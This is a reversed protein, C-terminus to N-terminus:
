LWYCVFNLKENCNQNKMNNTKTNLAGCRYSQVPCSPISVLSGLQEGNVWFWKGDMFRLGTWVSETETGVTELNLQKLSWESTVSALGTYNTRCFEQAEEWTKKEKVLILFRDCFFTDTETCLRGAVRFRVGVM